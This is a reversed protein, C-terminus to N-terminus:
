GDLGVREVIRVSAPPMVAQVEEVNVGFAESLRNAVQNTPEQGPELVVYRRSRAAVAAVPGGMIKRTGEIEVEGVAIRTPARIFNRKGRIIFAGKAVYEGPNPTKSVQQPTVWYAEGQAHGANWVRSMSVGFCAAEELAAESVAGEKAKVVLSPAGSVDAHVYRDADELQKAVLKENSRVDRGALVLHGDSTFFWRYNEFWFRKSAPRRQQKEQIESVIEVGREALEKMKAETRAKAEVAGARKERMKKALEYYDDANEQVSKRLDVRVKVKKGTEDELLLVATGEHQNVNDVLLAEPNGAARGEKLKEQVVKWGVGKSAEWLTKAVRGAVDFHGYLLDGKRKADAEEREFRVLAATQADLMRQVKVKEEELKKLRPDVREVTVAKGFYADLAEHFTPYRVLELGEREHAKLPFPAVDVKDEGRKVVVPDLPGHEVREMLARLSALLAEVEADSLEMVPRNKPVGAQACVEEALQGGLNVETALTRVADANSGRVKAFFEERSFTAPDARAPPPVWEAGPRVERTAWSQHLLPTVIRDDKVLVVNGEHFLEVVLVYRGDKRNSVVEVIRDFGHQRVDDVFANSLHKRLNMVFSSPKEPTERPLTTLHMAKGVLISVELRRPPDGGRLRLLLEAPGTEYAKDVRAGRYGRLERVAARVDLSSMDSKPAPGGGGGKRESM